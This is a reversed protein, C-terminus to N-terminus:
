IYLAMPILEIFPKDNQVVTNNYDPISEGFQARLEKIDTDAFYDFCTGSSINKKFDAGDSVKVVKGMVNVKTGMMYDINDVMYKMEIPVVIRMDTGFVSDTIFRMCRRNRCEELHSKMHDVIEKRRDQVNTNERNETFPKLVIQAEMARLTNEFYHIIPNPMIESNVVIFDNEKISSIGQQNDIYKLLNQKLLIDRLKFFVTIDKSISEETRQNVFENILQIKLNGQMHRGFIDYSIESLPTDINITLQDKTTVSRAEVFEQIVITFLNNILDGNLYLPIVARNNNM